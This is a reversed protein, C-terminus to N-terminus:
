LKKLNIWGNIEKIAEDIQDPLNLRERFVGLGRIHNSWLAQLSQISTVDFRIILSM